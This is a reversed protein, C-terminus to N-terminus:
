LCIRQATLWERLATIVIGIAVDKGACLIRLNSLLLRLLLCPLHHMLGDLGSLEEVLLLHVQNRPILTIHCVLVSVVIRETLRPDHGVLVLFLHWLM